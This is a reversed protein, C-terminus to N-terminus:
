SHLGPCPRAEGGTFRSTKRSSQNGYILYKLILIARLHPGSPPALGYTRAENAEHMADWEHFHFGAYAMLKNEEFLLVRLLV